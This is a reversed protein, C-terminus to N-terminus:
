KKSTLNNDKLLDNLFINYIKSKDDENFLLTLSDTFDKKYHDQIYKSFKEGAKKSPGKSNFVKTSTVLGRRKLGQLNDHVTAYPIKTKNSIDKISLAYGKSTHSKVTQHIKTQKNSFPTIRKYRFKAM